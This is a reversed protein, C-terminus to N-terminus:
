LILKILCYVVIVCMIYVGFVSVYIKIVGLPFFVNDNSSNNWSENGNWPQNNLCGDSWLDHSHFDMIKVNLCGGVVLRYVRAIIEGIWSYNWKDFPEGVYSIELFGCLRCWLIWLQLLFCLKHNIFRCM